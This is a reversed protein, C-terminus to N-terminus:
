VYGLFGTLLLGLPHQYRQFQHVPDDHVRQQATGSTQIGIIPILASANHFGDLYVFRLMSRTGPYRTEGPPCPAHPQPRLQM